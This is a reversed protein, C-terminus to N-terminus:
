FVEWTWGNGTKDIGWGAGGHRFFGVGSATSKGVLGHGSGMLDIILM